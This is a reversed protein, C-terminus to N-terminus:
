IKQKQSTKYNQEKCYEIALMRFYIKGSEWWQNISKYKIKQEQWNKWFKQFIEKFYKQKLISTNLKWISRGKPKQKTIELTVSVIERDSLTNPQITTNQIKLNKTAYIRDIRSHITQNYNHYTFAIKTHKKKRWTDKLSHKEKINQLHTIGLLHSDSPTGGQRDLYIDEVMNFDGALILNNNNNKELHKCLKKYFKIRLPPKTPAYINTIQFIQKEYAFSITLIRGEEDKDIQLQEIQLDKRFLIAVGSSKPTEWYSLGEWEKEWKTTQEPKSHTEQLLTIHSKKNQIIQFIKLRKGDDNLGNVNLTIITINTTLNYIQHQKTGDTM